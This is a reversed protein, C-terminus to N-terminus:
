GLYHSRKRRAVALEGSIIIEDGYVYNRLGRPLRNAVTDEKIHLAPFITISFRTHEQGHLASVANVGVFRRKPCPLHTERARDLEYEFTFVVVVWIFFSLWM